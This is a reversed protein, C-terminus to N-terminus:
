KKEKEEKREKAMQLRVAKRMVGVIKGGRFHSRTRQGRVPQGLMHRWGKYTKMDILRQVDFRRVVDVDSGTLHIDEGTEFDKRRNVLYSPIGFKIPDMIVQELKEIESESLSGLKMKPDFGSVSCIARSMTYSIGKIGRIARIIPKEGDLDTNAVRVITKIEAKPKEIKTPKALKKKEEKLKEAYEDKPKTVGM